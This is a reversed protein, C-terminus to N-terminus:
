QTVIERTSYEMSLESKLPFENLWICVNYVMHTVIQKHLYKIGCDLMFSILRRTREKMLYIHKKIKKRCARM